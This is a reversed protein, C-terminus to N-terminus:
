PGARGREIYATVPELRLRPALAISILAGLLALTFAGALGVSLPAHAAAAIAICAGGLGGGLALGLREGVEGAGIAKGEGGHHASEMVVMYLTPYAIGMGVGAIFWAAFPLALPAGVITALMATLAIVVMAAGLIVLRPRSMQVVVRSQWWSGISWSVTGLTIVVGAETLSRHRVVTLLLPIFYEGGIFAVILLFISIVAVPMGRQAHFSGEPLIHNLAPLSVVLGVLLLPITALSILSLAVMVAAIGVGLQVPWRIALHLGRTTAQPLRRLAPLALAAAALTLPVMSFFAWRWGITSAILVGYSPGLLGPVIWASALLALVRARGAEPYTRAVAVLSVTYAGGAGFGQLVRMLALIPMTTALGSLLTGAIFLGTFLLFPPGPGRRDAARGAIPAAVLAALSFGSFVLGYFELGGLDKKIAPMIATVVLAEIAVMVEVLLIGATLKGRGEQFLERWRM